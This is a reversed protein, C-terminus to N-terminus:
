EVLISSCGCHRGGDPLPEIQANPPKVNKRCDHPDALGIVECPEVAMEGFQFFGCFSNRRREPHYMAATEVGDLLLFRQTDSRLLHMPEPPFRSHCPQTAHCQQEHDIVEATPQDVRVHRYNRLAM